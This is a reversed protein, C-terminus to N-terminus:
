NELFIKRYQIMLEKYTDTTKNWTPHNMIYKFIKKNDTINKERSGKQFHHWQNRFHCTYEEVGLMNQINSRTEFMRNNNSFFATINNGETSANTTDDGDQCNGYQDDVNIGNSYNDYSWKVVNIQKGDLENLDVEPMRGVIHTFIKSLAKASIGSDTLKVGPQNIDDNTFTVYGGPILMRKLVGNVYIFDGCYDVTTVKTLTQSTISDFECFMWQMKIRLIM